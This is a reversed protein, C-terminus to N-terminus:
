VSMTSMRWGTRVKVNNEGMVSRVDAVFGELLDSREELEFKQLGAIKM